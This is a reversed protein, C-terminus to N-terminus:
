TTCGDIGCTLHSNPDFSHIKGVQSNKVILNRLEGKILYRHTSQLLSIRASVALTGLGPTEWVNVLRAIPNQFMRYAELVNLLLRRTKGM